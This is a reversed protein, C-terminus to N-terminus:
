GPAQMAPVVGLRRWVPLTDTLFTDAIQVAQDYREQQIELAKGDRLLTRGSALLDDLLAAGLKHPDDSLRDSVAIRYLLMDVDGAPVTTPTHRAILCGYPTFDETVRQAIAGNFADVDDLSQRTCGLSVFGAHLLLTAVQIPEHLAKSRDNFVPLAALDAIRQPGKALAGFVAAAVEANITLTGFSTVIQLPGEAPARLGHLTYQALQAMSSRWARPGRCYLDRRFSQNIAM